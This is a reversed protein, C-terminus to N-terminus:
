EIQYESLLYSTHPNYRGIENLQYYTIIHVPIVGLITGSILFTYLYNNRLMLYSIVSLTGGTAFLILQLIKFNKNPAYIAYIKDIAIKSSDSM